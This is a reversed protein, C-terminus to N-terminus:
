PAGAEKADRAPPLHVAFRSGKGLESHVSIRGGHAEVIHKAIALGLGSGETKRTLLNDVRYFREFIRKRDRPAIGMGNDEVDIRVGRRDPQARLAIRRDAGSYKFANQLLNLLAGSMAQVDVEVPPLGPRIEREVPVEGQAVHQARFAELTADIIREVAVKERELPRRGGEVRAWELFRDVMGSLRATEKALLELVQAREAEDQVRGASMMEVFMRVSTLPTRLEHSVLSVFDTKMRSLRAERYLARATYAIGLGLTVYFLGLLIGYVTRNRASAQAVPDEGRAVAQVRFDDLGPPLPRQALPAGELAQRAEQVGLVLRGVLGEGGRRTSRLEFRIPEGSPILDASLESALQQVADPDLLAGQLRAGYRAAAVFVAGDQFPTSFVTPRQIEEFRPLASSLVIRARPDASSIVGGHFSFGSASLLRGDPATVRLGTGSPEMTSAALAAAFRQAALDLRGSWTAELRKEVAARENVIALVGFGSLGASPLVVLLMFLTMARGFHLFGGSDKSRM